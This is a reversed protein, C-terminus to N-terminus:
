ECHSGLNLKHPIVKRLTQVGEKNGKKKKKKTM